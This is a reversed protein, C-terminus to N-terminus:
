FDRDSFFKVSYIYNMLKKKVFKQKLVVPVYYHIVAM